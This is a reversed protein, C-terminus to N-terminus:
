LVQAEQAETKGDTFHLRHDRHRRFPGPSTNAHHARFGPAQLTGLISSPGSGSPAQEWRPIPRRLTSVVPRGPERGGGTLCLSPSVRSRSQHGKLETVAGKFTGLSVAGKRGSHPQDPLRVGDGPRSRPPPPAERGRGPAKHLAPRTSAPLSSVIPAAAPGPAPMAPQCHLLVFGCPGEQVEAQALLRIQPSCPRPRPQPVAAAKPSCHTNM